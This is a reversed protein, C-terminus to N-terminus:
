ELSFLRQLNSFYVCMKDLLLGHEDDTTVLGEELADGGDYIYLKRLQQLHQLWVITKM